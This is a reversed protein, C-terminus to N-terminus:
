SNQQTHDFNLRTSDEVVLNCSSITISLNPNKNEIAITLVRSGTESDILISFM